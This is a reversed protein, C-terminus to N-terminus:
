HKTTGATHPVTDTFLALADVADFSYNANCFECTVDVSGREEIIDRVETEGLGQLMGSVRAASCGCHFRWSEPDFVRVQEEHFLRRLVESPALGLLEDSALTDSLMCARRWTEEREAPTQTERDVNIQPLMQLLLGSAREDDAALWLRTPLQESREFYEGITAALGGDALPAIGQYREKDAGPDITMVAHGKGLLSGLLSTPVAGATSGDGILDGAVPGGSAGLEGARDEHWQALGRLTRKGTAEIVVLKVPGDGRM